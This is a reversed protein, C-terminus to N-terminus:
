PEFVEGTQLTCRSDQKEAVWEWRLQINGYAELIGEAWLKDGEAKLKDGAARLKDGEARLQDGEAKLQDGEGWLKSGEAWLKRGEARLKDGEARLKSGEAKLKRRLGWIFALSIAGTKTTVANRGEAYENM